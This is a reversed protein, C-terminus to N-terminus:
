PKGLIMAAAFAGAIAGWCLLTIADALERPLVMGVIAVTIAVLCGYPSHAHRTM